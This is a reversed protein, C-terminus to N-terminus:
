YPSLERAGNQNSASLVIDNSNTSSATAWQVQSDDKIIRGEKRSTFHGENVLLRQHEKLATKSSRYALSSMTVM